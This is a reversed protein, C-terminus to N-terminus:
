CIIIIDPKKDNAGGVIPKNLKIITKHINKIKDNDWKNYPYSTEHRSARVASLKHYIELIKESNM